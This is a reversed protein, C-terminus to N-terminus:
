SVLLDSKKLQERVSVYCSVIPCARGHECLFEFFIPAHMQIFRMNPRWTSSQLSVVHAEYCQVYCTDREQYSLGLRRFVYRLASINPQSSTCLYTLLQVMSHHLCDVPVYEGSADLEDDYDDMVATYVRMAYMTGDYDRVDYLHYRIANQLTAPTCCHRVLRQIMEKRNVPDPFLPLLAKFVDVSVDVTSPWALTWGVQDVSYLTHKQAVDLVALIISEHELWFNADKMYVLWCNSTGPYYDITRVIRPVYESAHTQLLPVQLGANWFSALIYVYPKDFLNLTACADYMRQSARMVYAPLCRWRVVCDRLANMDPIVWNMMFSVDDVHVTMRVIDPSFRKRRALCWRYDELFQRARVNFEPSRAPLPALFDGTQTFFQDSASEYVSLMFDRSGSPYLDSSTSFLSRVLVLNSADFSAAIVDCFYTVIYSVPNNSEFCERLAERVIGSAYPVNNVLLAACLFYRSSINKRTWLFSRTAFRVSGYTRMRVLRVDQQRQGFEFIREVDLYANMAACAADSETRVLYYFRRCVHIFSFYDRMDNDCRPPPLEASFWLTRRSDRDLSLLSLATPGDYVFFAICQVVDLPLSVKGSLSCSGGCSVAM